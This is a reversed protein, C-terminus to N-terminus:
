RAGEFFRALAGEQFPQSGVALGGSFPFQLTMIVVISFGVVVAIAGAGIAHFASSTSGVLTAYGLIIVAGVLILAAILAPLDNGSSAGLRDRRAELVANLHRVSDDYFSVQASTKPQYSQMADFIGDIDAWAVTSERGDRMLSWEQEVVAHVYRGVAAQVNSAAPEGYAGSDRVIAALGDAEAAVNDQAASYAQFEIVVVFALLLGFLSAVVGLVQSSVEADFGARTSPVLRRVVWVGALVIGVVMCVVVVVLLWTPVTDVVGRM